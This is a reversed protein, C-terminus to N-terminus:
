HSVNVAYEFSVQMLYIVCNTASLTILYLWLEHVNKKSCCKQEFPSQKMESYEKM